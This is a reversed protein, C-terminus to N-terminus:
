LFVNITQSRSLPMWSCVKDLWMPNRFQQVTNSLPQLASLPLPSLVNITQSKFFPMLSWVKVPWWPKTFQQVTNSLSRLTRIPPPVKFTQDKHLSDYQINNDCVCAKTHRRQYFKINMIQKILLYNGAKCHLTAHSIKKL